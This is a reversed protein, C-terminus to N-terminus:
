TSSLVISDIAKGYISESSPVQVVKVSAIYSISRLARESGDYFSILIPIEIVIWPQAETPSQSVVAPGNFVTSMDLKQSLMNDRYEERMVRSFGMFGGKTYYKRVSELQDDFNSFSYTLSEIVAKKTWEILIPKTNIPTLMTTMNIIDHSENSLSISLKPKPPYHAEVFNLCLSAILAYGILANMVNMRHLKERDEKNSILHTVVLNKFNKRVFPVEHWVKGLDSPLIVDGSDKTKTNKESQPLPLCGM